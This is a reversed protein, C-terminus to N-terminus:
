LYFTGLMNNSDDGYTGQDGTLISFDVEAWTGGAGEIRYVGQCPEGYIDVMIPQLTSLDIYGVTSEYIRGSISVQQEMGVDVVSVTYDELKAKLSTGVQQMIMNIQMIQASQVNDFWSLATGDLVISDNDAVFDYTLHKFTVSYTAFEPNGIDAIGSANLLMTGDMVVGGGSNCSAMSLTANLAGTFEDFTGSITMNGSIECPETFAPIAMAAFTANDSLQNVTIREPLAGIMDVLQPLVSTAEGDSSVVQLASIPLPDSLESGYYALAALDAANEETVTAQATIGDYSVTASGGGGGGCASLLVVTAALMLLRNM